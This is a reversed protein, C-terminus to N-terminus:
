RPATGRTRQTRPPEFFSLLRVLGDVLARGASGDPDREPDYITVNM